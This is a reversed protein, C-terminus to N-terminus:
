WPCSHLFLLAMLVQLVMSMASQNTLPSISIQQFKKAASFIIEWINESM